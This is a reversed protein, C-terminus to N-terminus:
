YLFKDNSLETEGDWRYCVLQGEKAVSYDLCAAKSTEICPEGTKWYHGFFVVKSGNYLYDEEPLPIDDIVSLDPVSLACNRYTPDKQESYWNLRITKRIFGGKDAWGKNSEPLKIEIGKLTTEIADYFVGKEVIEDFMDHSLTFDSNLKTKLTDINKQIWAAHVARIKTNEFFLPLTMFWEIVDKHKETGLPYEKLFAEHQRNNKDTHKRFYEGNIIKSYCIANYEHNGMLAIANKNEAMTRVIDIVKEEENGRDIYDGVFLAKRGYPHYFGNNSNVYGLKILLKKLETAHGHVDGIVDYRTM